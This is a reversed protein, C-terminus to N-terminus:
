APASPDTMTALFTYNGAGHLTATSSQAANTGNISFSPTTAGSPQSIVSWTYTLSSQGANDDGLVGLSTTTGTVPNPSASAPTIVWPPPPDLVTVGATGSVSGSAAQLTASGTGTDPATYMGNGSVTGMGGSEISWTFTPAASMANGFQDFASASFQKSAGDNVSASGPSVTLTTVTQNVTVSVSSTM